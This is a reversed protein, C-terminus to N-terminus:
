LALEPVSGPEVSLKKFLFPGAQRAVAWRVMENWDKIEATLDKLEAKEPETLRLRAALLLTRQEPLISM